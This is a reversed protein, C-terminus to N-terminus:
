GPERTNVVPQDSLTTASPHLLSQLQEFAPLHSGPTTEVVDDRLWRRARSRWPLPGFMHWGCTRRRINGELCEEVLDDSGTCRQGVPAMGVEAERGHVVCSCPHDGGQLGVSPSQMGQVQGHGVREPVLQASM